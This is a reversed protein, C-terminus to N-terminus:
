EAVSATPGDLASGAVREMEDLARQTARLLPEASVESGVAQQMWVDPALAGLRCLREIEVGMPKGGGALHEEIQFAILHGLPYDPTYLGASILHSYIALLAVDQQGTLQAFYGNWLDGAISVVAERLQAPTAEPHAYAWRWAGMDVLAVAAIERTAWFDELARLHRTQADESGLGLFQLDRSQFVFAMAETFAVNPVGQLLTHDITSVSFVQEVNHGMEHVAINYGKFDM